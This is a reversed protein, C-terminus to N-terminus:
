PWLPVWLSAWVGLALLVMRAVMGLLERVRSERTEM